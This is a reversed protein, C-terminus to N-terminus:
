SYLRSVLVICMFAIYMGCMTYLEAGRTLRELSARRTIRVALPLLAVSMVYYAPLVRSFALTPIAVPALSICLRHLPVIWRNRHGAFAAGYWVAECAGLMAGISLAVVGSPWPLYNLALLFSLAALLSHSAISTLVSIHARGQEWGSRSMGRLALVALLLLFHNQSVQIRFVQLFGLVFAMAIIAVAGFGRSDAAGSGRKRIWLMCLGETINWLVLIVLLRLTGNIRDAQASHELGSLDLFLFAAFAPSLRM